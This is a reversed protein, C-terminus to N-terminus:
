FNTSNTRGWIIPDGDVEVAKIVDALAYGTCTIVSPIGEEVCVPDDYMDLCEEETYLEPADDCDAATAPAAGVLMVFGLAFLGVLLSLNKSMIKGETAGRKTGIEVAVAFGNM